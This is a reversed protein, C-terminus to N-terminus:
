HAHAESRRYLDKVYEDPIRVTGILVQDKGFGHCDSGGSVGLGYKRALGVYADVAASPYTPYYAEIVDIGLHFFNRIFDEDPTEGPHCLVALGGAERILDIAKGASISSKPVNGYCNDGIYKYFAESITTVVGARLLARAVHPRGPSGKGSVAFVEEPSINLNIQELKECIKYIRQRREAKMDELFRCLKRNAIDVFLGAIHVEDGEFNTSLEVGSITKVAERKGAEMEEAVGEVTDHDTIAIHTLKSRRAIEVIETPSFSGDSLDSHIHLDSGFEQDM